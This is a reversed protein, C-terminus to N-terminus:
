KRTYKVLYLVVYSNWFVHAAIGTIVGGWWSSFYAYGWMTVYGFVSHGFISIFAATYRNATGAWLDWIAELVGFFAHAPVISAGLIMAIGTKGLEEIVPGIWVVEAIGFKRIGGRNILFAAGAALLAAALENM